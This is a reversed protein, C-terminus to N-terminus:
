PMGMLTQPAKPVSNFRRERAPQKGLPMIWACWRHIIPRKMAKFAGGWGLPLITKIPRVGDGFLRMIRPIGNVTGAWSKMALMPGFPAPKPNRSGSKCVRPTTNMVGGWSGWDPHGPANLGNDVLGLFSPTDGEMLYEVSPYQAGLPGKGQRIHIDLWQNSVLDYDGGSFRGHFRDGSIGSWTAHHYAGGAHMGPSAVYFLKPFTKRIWPGSNDQDSITYVRLQRIFAALQPASRTARVKWLAQALVTPGGWVTVWIPRPDPRDAVEILWDSGSSDMGEGVAQMGYDPRGERLVSLLAEADPYGPEHRNLNPQVEGYAEVMERIRWAATQDPQHISTTAVLGEIDFHNAYTLLRVLSQADDPENETDTLVFLREKAQLSGTLLGCLVCIM